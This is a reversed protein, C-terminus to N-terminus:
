SLLAEHESHPHQQGAPEQSTETRSDIGSLVTLSRVVVRSDADAVLLHTQSDLRPSRVIHVLRVLSSFRPILDTQEQQLTTREFQNTQLRGM